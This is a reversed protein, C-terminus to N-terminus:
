CLKQIIILFDLEIKRKTKNKDRVPVTTIRRERALFTSRVYSSM